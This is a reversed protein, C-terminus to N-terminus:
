SIHCKLIKKEKASIYYQYNIMRLKLKVKWSLQKLKPINHFHKRVERSIRTFQENAEQKDSIQGLITQVNDLSWWIFRMWVEEMLQPYVDNITHIIEDWAKYSDIRGKHFKETLISQERNRYIYGTKSTNVIRDAKLFLQYSVALDEHIRGEPFTINDFCHRRYLKNWLAFRYIKGRFLERLAEEQSLTIIHNKERFHTVEDGFQRAYGCVSIDSDNDEMLNQLNEFMDPLIWDDSDVFGILEGTAHQVGTNRAASVGQSDQHIVIIRSDEKAFEKCITPSNDTSGDNILLIELEKKTQNCISSLCEELYTEVNYVPVIISITPKM